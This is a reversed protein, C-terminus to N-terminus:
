PADVLTWTVAGTYPKGSYTITPDDQVLIGMDSPWSVTTDGDAGSAYILTPSADLENIQGSGNVFVLSGPLTLGTGSVALPGPTSAYLQWRNVASRTDSVVIAWSADQRRITQPSAAIPTTLFALNEPVTKFRLLGGASVTATTTRIHFATNSTVTVLTGAVLRSPLAARYEGSTAAYVTLAVPGGATQANIRVTAGPATTGRIFDIQDTPEELTLFLGGLALIRATQMNFTSNTPLIGPDDATYNSTVSLNTDYQASATIQINSGDAKKWEYLPPDIISGTEPLPMATTWLQALGTDIVTKGALGYWQMLKGNPSYLVVSLPDKFYATGGTTFQLLPYAAGSAINKIHFTGGQEVTLDGAVRLTPLVGAGTQTIDVKGGSKVTFSKAQMYYDMSYFMGKAVEVKFTANKGVTIVPQSAENYILEKKTVRVYVEADDLITLSTNSKVLYFATYFIHENIFTAHGGIEVKNGEVPEGESGAYGSVIELYTTGLFRTVGTRNYVLSPGRYTVNEYTLTVNPVADYVSFAGMANKGVITMNKVTLHKTGNIYQIRITSNIDNSNADTLTHDVGSGDLPYHGDVVVTKKSPHIAIGFIDLTIDAGLYVNLIGNDNQLADKLEALTYAVATQSDLVQIGFSAILQSKGLTLEEGNEEVPPMEEEPPIYEERSIETESLGLPVDDGEKPLSSDQRSLGLQEGEDEAFFTQVPYFLFAVAM